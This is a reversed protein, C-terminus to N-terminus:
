SVKEYFADEEPGVDIFWPYLRLEDDAGTFFVDDLWPEVAGEPAELAIWRGEVAATSCDVHVVEDDEWDHFGRHDACLQWTGDFTGAPM